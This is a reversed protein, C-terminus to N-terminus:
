HMESLIISSDVTMGEKEDPNFLNMQGPKVQSKAARKSAPQVVNVSQDVYIQRAIQRNRPM